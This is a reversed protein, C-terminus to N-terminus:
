ASVAKRRRLAFGIMGLAGLGAIAMSSPEPIVFEGAVNAPVTGNTAIGGDQISGLRFSPSFNSTYGWLSSKALLNPNGLAPTYTAVLSGANLTLPSDPNQLGAAATPTGQAATAGTVAPSINTAAAAAPGLFNSGGAGDVQAFNLGALIGFSTVVSPLVRNVNVSSSAIDTGTPVNVNEFLYLFNSPAAVSAAGFGAILAANLAANGTGFRDTATGGTTDYVAFNIFGQTTIGGSTIFPQTNGSFAGLLAARAQGPGGLVGALVLAAIGPVLGARRTIAYFRNM